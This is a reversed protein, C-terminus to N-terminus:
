PTWGTLVDRFTERFATMAQQQNEDLDGIRELVQRLSVSVPEGLLLTGDALRIYTRGYIQLQGNSRNKALSNETKFIGKLLTGNQLSDDGLPATDTFISYTEPAFDPLKGAGLAVGYSEIQSRVLEDARFSCRYYIGAASPRFTVATVQQQVRHVSDGLLLYGPQAEMPADCLYRGYIGDAVTFDDTQSDRLYIQGDGAAISGSLTHGNLDVPIDKELRGEATADQLLQIEGSQSAADQWTACGVGNVSFKADILWDLLGNDRDLYVAAPVDFHTAGPLITIEANNGQAQLAEVFTISAEPEVITDADGVFARIPMNKLKRLNIDTSRVSGSLPAIRAFTGPYSLAISWTGTGGMSHGTLSVNSADLQYRDLTYRVLSLISEGADPWGKRDATLQPIVVYARPALEGRQLYAPFGEVGTILSLDDGKGSGGHLYVLLPMNPTPDTPTYLWYRFTDTQSTKLTYATFTAAQTAEAQPLLSLLLCLLAAMCIIKRM